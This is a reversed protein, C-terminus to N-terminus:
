RMCAYNHWQQATKDEQDQEAYSQQKQSQNAKEWGGRTKPARTDQYTYKINKVSFETHCTGPPPSGHSTAMSVGKIQMKGLSVRDNGAKSDTPM